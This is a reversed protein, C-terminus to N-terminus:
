NFESTSKYAEAQNCDDEYVSFPHMNKLYASLKPSISEASVYAELYRSLILEKNILPDDQTEIIAECVDLDKRLITRCIDNLVFASIQERYALWIFSLDFLDRVRDRHIFAEAKLKALTGIDYVVIGNVKVIGPEIHRRSVEIKLPHSINGYNIYVRKVMDTDKSICYTYGKLQCFMEAIKKLDTRESDLDIDESFRDLNYCLM